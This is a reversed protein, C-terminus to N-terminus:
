QCVTIVGESFQISRTQGGEDLARQSRLTQSYTVTSSMFGSHSGRFINM